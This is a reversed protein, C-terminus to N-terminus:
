DEDDDEEEEFDSPHVWAGTQQDITFGKEVLSSSLELCRDVLSSELADEEELTRLIREHEMVDAAELSADFITIPISGLQFELKM